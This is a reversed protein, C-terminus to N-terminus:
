NHAVGACFRNVRGFVKVWCYWHLILNQHDSVIPLPERSDRRASLLDEQWPCTCYSSSAITLRKFAAAASCLDFEGRGHNIGLGVACESVYKSCNGTRNASRQWVESPNIRGCQSGEMTYEFRFPILDRIRIVDTHGRSM